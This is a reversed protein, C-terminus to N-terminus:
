VNQWSLELELEGGTVPVAMRVPTRERRKLFVPLARLTGELLELEWALPPRTAMGPNLRLTLPYAEPGAVPWGYREAAELDRSSIEFPESYMVSLGANSRQADPEDRLIAQLAQLNEYLALGLVVGQQGMVVAYWTSTQNKDCHIRVPTDAPAYQWPAHRYFDAAAAFFGGVQEATVGPTDIMAPMPETATLSTQLESLIEDLHPLDDRIRCDVGVPELHPRLQERFEPSVVEVAGPRHPMGIVPVLMAALLTDWLWEASPEELRMQQTLILNATPSTVLAVWPRQPPGEDTIWTALRRIDAQWVEEPEQPLDILESARSRMEGPTAQLGSGLEQLREFVGDLEDLTRHLECRIGCRALKSQWADQYSRLRVQLTEPRRPEGDQPHCMAELLDRLMQQPTPRGEEYGTFLVISAAAPDIVLWSWAELAEGDDATGIQAHRLDAQWTEGASQPLEGVDALLAALSRQPPEDACRPAIGTTERLWTIAGPTARWGSLFEAAYCVAESEGGPEIYPPSEAPLASNGLLYEAVHRNGRHAQKLLRRAAPTDGATRFALLARTFTWDARIEDRYQDLLQALDANRNLACYYAALVYRVGQNDNPNLRLLEQAQQVAEDRLGQSFLHQALELRARMYPRTELAGWFRGQYEALKGPGGLAREGAAVAQRYCSLAEDGSAALRALLIHADAADPWAVLAAHALRRREQPDPAEHAQDLLEHAQVQRPDEDAGFGEERLFQRMMSEM